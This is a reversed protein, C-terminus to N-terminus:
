EGRARLEGEVKNQDFDTSTDELIHKLATTQMNPIMLKQWRQVLDDQQSLWHLINRARQPSVTHRDDVYLKSIAEQRSGSSAWFKAAASAAGQQHAMIMSVTAFEDAVDENDWSPLGWQKLLTHGLEHFLVFSIGDGLRQEALKEILEECITINPNSFANEMGCHRVSIRFDPFIYRAKLMGYFQELLQETRQVEEPKYPLVEFAYVSVSRPLFWARGNDIVLNYHGTRPVRFMYRGVGRVEGSTGEFYQFRQHSIFLQLNPDDLLWVVAKNNLGGDVKFDAFVTGGRELDLGYWKSRGASVQTIDRVLNRSPEVYVHSAQQAQCCAAVFLCVVLIARCTRIMGIAGIPHTLSRVFQGAFM